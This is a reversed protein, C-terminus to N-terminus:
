CLNLDFSLFITNRGVQKSFDIIAISVNSMLALSLHVVRHVSKDQNKDGIQGSIFGGYLFDNGKELTWKLVCKVSNELSALDAPMVWSQGTKRNIVRFKEKYIDELQIKIM